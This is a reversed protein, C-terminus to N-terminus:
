SRSTAVDLYVRESNHLKCVIYIRSWLALKYIFHGIIDIYTQRIQISHSILRGAISQLSKNLTAKWRNYIHEAELTVFCIDKSYNPVLGHPIHIAAGTATANVAAPTLITPAINSVDTINATTATASTVNAVDTATIATHINLQQQIQKINM